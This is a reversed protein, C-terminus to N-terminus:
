LGTAYFVLAVKQGAYHSLAVLNGKGDPLSFAPAEVGVSLGEGPPLPEQPAPTLIEAIQDSNLCGFCIFTMAILAVYVLEDVFKIRM